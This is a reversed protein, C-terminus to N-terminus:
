TFFVFLKASTYNTDRCLIRSYNMFKLLEFFIPKLILDFYRTESTEVIGLNRMKITTATKSGVKDVSYFQM